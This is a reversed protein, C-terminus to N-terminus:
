MKEPAAIGLVGLGNALVQATAATILLRLQSQQSSVQEKASGLISHSNYFSNYRAALEYLYNALLNPSYSVAALQVAEPFQYLFRLVALEKPELKTSDWDSNQLKAKLGQQEGKALVSKCRAHTYQLYPGSNGEMSLIEDWDFVVNLRPKRKLDNYKLAGVGVPLALEAQDPGVLEQAKAVAQDLVDKLWIVNGRRTSMKHDKFRFLGHAVHVRQGPKVWGLLGELEFLQKFYLEQEAGVENIITTQAGYKELRFKDTALDRTAYLTTGDQKIIMLPPHKDDPFFVLQAGESNTLLGKASLEEVVAKMKDEFFSEGYGRGENETFHIDLLKYIKNFETWSWEICRQWIRRAEPDGNELKKFWERSKEVISPDAEAEQHFKVYLDVLEKVPNDAQAIEEENGWTKIAYIQKGFQTGWDGLHNDRFVQYGTFDLLNAVANGIITSRLHGITFPKAINPSSFEVVVKNSALEQDAIESRGYNEQQKLINSAQEVLFEPKLWFNIFGPGAVEVKALVAQQSLKSKLEAVLQEALMRPSKFQQNDQDNIQSFAVMALNTSFDGHQEDAPHELQLQTVLESLGLSKILELPELINIIQEQLQSKIM